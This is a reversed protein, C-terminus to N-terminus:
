RGGDVAAGYGYPNTDATADSDSYAAPEAYAVTPVRPRVRVAPASTAFCRRRRWGPCCVRADCHNSCPRRGYIFAGWLGGAAADPILFRARAEYFVAYLLCYIAFL